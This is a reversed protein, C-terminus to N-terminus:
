FGIFDQAARLDPSSISYGETAATRSLIQSEPFDPFWRYIGPSQEVTEASDVTGRIWVFPERPESTFVDHNIPSWAAHNGPPPTEQDWVGKFVEMTQTLNRVYGQQEAATACFSLLLFSSVIM